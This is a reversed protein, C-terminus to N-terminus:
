TTRHQKSTPIQSFEPRPWIVLAIFWHPALKACKCVSRNANKYDGIDTDDVLQFGKPTSDDETFVLFKSAEVDRSNWLQYWAEKTNKATIASKPNQFTVGGCHGAKLHDFYQRHRTSTILKQKIAKNIPLSDSSLTALYDKGVYILTKDETLLKRLSTLENLIKPLSEKFYIDSPPEPHALPNPRKGYTIYWHDNIRNSALTNQTEKPPFDDTTLELASYAPISGDKSYVIWKALEGNRPSNWMQFWIENGSTPTPRQLESGYSISEAGVQKLTDLYINLRSKTLHWDELDFDYSKMWVDNIHCYSVRNIAKESDLLNALTAFLHAKHEFRQKLQSDSPKQQLTPEAKSQLKTFKAHAYSPIIDMAFGPEEALMKSDFFSKVRLKADSIQVDAVGETLLDDRKYLKVWPFFDENNYTYSKLLRYEARDAKFDHTNVFGLLQKQLLNPEIKLDVCARPEPEVDSEEFRWFIFVSLFTLSLAIMASAAGYLFIRKNTM